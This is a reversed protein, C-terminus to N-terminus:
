VVFFTGYSKTTTNKYWLQATVVAESTFKSKANAPVTFRTSWFGNRDTNTYYAFYRGSPFRVTLWIGHQVHKKAQVVIVEQTGIRIFHYWVSLYSFTARYKKKPKPTPTATPPVPTNTATATATATAPVATPTATAPPSTATATAAPQPTTTPTPTPTSTAPVTTGTATATPTLTITPTATPANPNAVITGTVLQGLGNFSGQVCVNSQLVVPQGSLSASLALPVVVGGITLSGIQASTAATYATVPGCLTIAQTSNATFTAQTLQGGANLTGSLCVNSGNTGTFSSPNITAAAVIVYTVTVTPTTITVTGNTTAGPATYASITGCASIPTVPASGGSNPSVTGVTLQGLANVQGNICLNQGVAIATGTFNANIGIPISASGISIFGTASAGAPVYSNVNGCVVVTSSFNDSFTGSVIQGPSQTNMQGVFCVDKGVEGTPVQVSNTSALPYTINLGNVTFTLGSQTAAQLVGCINLPTTTQATQASTTSPRAVQPVIAAAVAFALLLFVAGARKLSHRTL